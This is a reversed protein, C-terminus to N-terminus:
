AAVAIPGQWSTGGALRVTQLWYNTVGAPAARDVFIHTAAGLGRGALILHRNLKVRTGSHGRYVNYGAVGAAQPTRWTLAVDSGTRRASVRASEVATTREAINPGDVTLGYDGCMVNATAEQMTVDFTANAPITGSYSQASNNLTLNVGLDAVYNSTVSAANFGPAYMASNLAQSCGRADATVVVCTSTGGTNRFRYLDFHRATTDAAGPNSKPSACTTGTTNGTQNLRGTQTSDGASIAGSYTFTAALAAPVGVAMLALAALVLTKRRM